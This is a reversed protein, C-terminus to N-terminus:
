GEGGFLYDLLPDGDGTSPERRPAPVLPQSPAPASPLTQPARRARDTTATPQKSGALAERLAAATRMLVEDRPQATAAAASASAPLFNASCGAIPRISYTSCTNVILGARLYHGFADFGNIAAVQYFIYDMAREIGQTKQFSELLQRATLAVPKAAKGLDRLDRIVPRAATIAPTGIKAAEGLSDVAPIAAQSFPGLQIIMRNIDPAADHLDALVPTMEDSLAGLRTMTPRLERLFEPFKQIDQQFDGSREATAQAVEASSALAGSIHRRERALPALVTDGNRALDQLAKNQSALIALVRDIEKLAPNARRIVARVDEGRGAVTAGLENLIISLRERYPLRLTNNILDLDVAQETNQVPLFYQGEGPGRDIKRLAPPPQAGVAHKQTPECEVFKEGILSQPRIICSADRRFDRYAPDDIRLVVAAKFQPTVDLSHVKGVKVGAVKVDEGPVLFGANDFIARVMYPNAERDRTLVFVLAALVALVAVIAAIRKV